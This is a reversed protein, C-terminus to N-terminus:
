LLSISPWGRHIFGLMISWWWFKCFSCGVWGGGNCMSCHKTDEQDNLMIEGCSGGMEKRKYIETQQTLYFDNQTHPDSLPLLCVKCWNRFCCQDDIAYMLLATSGVQTTSTVYAKQSAIRKNGRVERGTVNGPLLRQLCMALWIWLLKNCPFALNGLIRLWFPRFSRSPWPRHGGFEIGSSLIRPGM